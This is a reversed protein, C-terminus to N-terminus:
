QNRGFRVPLNVAIENICSLDLCNLVTSLWKIRTPSTTVSLVIPHAFERIEKDSCFTRVKQKQSKCIGEWDGYTLSNRLEEPVIHWYQRAWM